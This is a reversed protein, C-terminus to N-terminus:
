AADRRSFLVSGLALVGLSVIAWELGGHLTSLHRGPDDPVDV